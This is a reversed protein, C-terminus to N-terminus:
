DLSELYKIREDYNKMREELVPVRTAFENHKRVEATLTDLRTTMVALQTELKADALESQRRFDESMKKRNNFSTVVVGVLSLVSTIIAIWIGESM